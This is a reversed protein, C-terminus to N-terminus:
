NLPAPPPRIEALARLLASKAERIRVEERTLGVLSEEIKRRAWDRDVLLVQGPVLDVGAAGLDRLFCRADVPLKGGLHRVEIEGPAPCAVSFDPGTLDPVNGQEAVLKLTNRLCGIVARVERTEGGGAERM